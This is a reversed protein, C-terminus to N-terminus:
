FSLSTQYIYILPSSNQGTGDAPPSYIIPEPTSATGVLTVNGSAGYNLNMILPSPIAGGNGANSFNVTPDLIQRFVTGSIAGIGYQGMPPVAQVISPTFTPDHRGTAYSAYGISPLLTENGNIFTDNNLDRLGLIESYGPVPYTTAFTQETAGKRFVLIYLDYKYNSSPQIGNPAYAASAFSQHAPNLRILASWFYTCVQPNPAPFPTASGFQYARETAPIFRFGPPAQLVFPTVQFPANRYTISPITTTSTLVTNQAPPVLPTPPSGPVFFKSDLYSQLNGGPGYHNKIVTVAAQAVNQAVSTETTQRTWNAGVPFVSAVMIM